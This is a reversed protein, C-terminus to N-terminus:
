KAKSTERSLYSKIEGVTQFNKFVPNKADEGLADSLKDKDSSEYIAVFNDFGFKHAGLLNAETVPVDYTLLGRTNDQIVWDMAKEQQSPDKSVRGNETLGLSPDTAALENWRAETFQYVGAAKTDPDFKNWKGQSLASKLTEKTNEPIINKVDTDFQPLEKKYEKLEGIFDKREPEDGFVDIYKDIKEHLEIIEEKLHKSGKRVSGENLAEFVKYISNTPAGGALYGANTLLLKRQTDSFEKMRGKLAMDLSDKLIVIGAAMDSAVGFLPTSVNRYDSRVQLESQYKINDVLPITDLTLDIPATAFNWAQGLAVDALDEGNKVGKLQTVISEEEDRVAAVFASSAGLALSMTLVHKIAQANDGRKYAGKTKDIQALVSNLRSRRDTWYRVMISAVKNKELPTKDETANATLSTDFAQQIYSRLAKAKEAESMTDLKAKPYEDSAGNLFKESLAHTALVKNFKDAERVFYFSADIGKKQIERIAKYKEGKSKNNKFFTNDAPIFDYSHKVVSNDINDQEFKIDPNIEGAMDVFSEYHAINAIMKQATKALYFSTSPGTRLVLNSLSDAQIAASRFNFGIAKVAHLSHAKQILKNVWKYEEGFLVSERETSKSITDKVSNLLVAFKKPGVVAKMNKVNMPNKLVKLIDIGTERFHLDHVAEETSNFVNEFDIDLPRKSGTRDKLRGQQTMEASRMRAFFAGNESLGLDAAKESFDELFKGARMEDSMMQRNIPYYGGPYVKGRHVFPVGKVMEPAIGTTKKHLDLSRQEFRKFRDVLFNQTFAVDNEDLHTDLVRQLLDVDLAPLGARNTFNLIAERGDPDGLHAQLSLLDVKRINGEGDGLTPIDAFEPISVYENFMKKFKDMGYFQEIIAKDHTEIEAIETRKATRADKIPKGILNHFYGDLKQEDLDSVITKLSSISSISTRVFETFKETPTLHNENKKESRKPDYNYHAELKTQVEEAITEATILENRADKNKLFKNKLKAQSLIFQGMETMTQYQEVTLDKYSAQTNDLRDPIAPIFKGEDAQKKIFANFKKQETEGKISGDLKYLSMFEEMVDFMNADKLEQINSESSAKKWFKQYREVKDLSNTAEKRMENNLAAKEKSEFAQEFQGDTFQKIAQQHTRAEGREYMKPHIDRIKM